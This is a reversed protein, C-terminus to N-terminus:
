LMSSMYCVNSTVYYGKRYLVGRQTFVVVFCLLGLIYYVVKVGAKVPSKELRTTRLEYTAYLM